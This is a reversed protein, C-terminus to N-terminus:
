APECMNLDDQVHAFYYGPRQEGNMCATTDLSRTLLCHLGQESQMSTCALRPRQLRCMGLSVNRM